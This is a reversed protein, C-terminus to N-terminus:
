EEAQAPRILAECQHEGEKKSCATSSGCTETETGRETGRETGSKTGRETDIPFHEFFHGGISSLDNVM